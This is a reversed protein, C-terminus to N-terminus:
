SGNIKRWNDAVSPPKVHKIGQVPKFCRSPVDLFKVPKFPPLVPNIPLSITRYPCIFFGRYDPVNTPM